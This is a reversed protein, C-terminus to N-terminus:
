VDVFENKICGVCMEFKKDDHLSPNMEKVMRRAKQYTESNWAELFGGSMKVDGFNYKNYDFIACCPTVIGNWNIVAQNWLFLCSKPGVRKPKNTKYGGRKLNDLTPLWKNGIKEKDQKVEIDIATNLRMPKIDIGIGLEKCLQKIVPIEHQNHKMTIFQWVIKPTKSKLENKKNVIEKVKHLVTEFNGYVRYQKYTENSAGDASVILKSLGSTIIKKADGLNLNTSLNTAIKKKAAYSIM